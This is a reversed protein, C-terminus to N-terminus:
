NIKLVFDTLNCNTCLKTENLIPLRLVPVPAFMERPRVRPPESEEGILVFVSVVTGRRGM